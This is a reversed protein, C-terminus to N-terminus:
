GRHGHNPRHALRWPALSPSRYHVQGQLRGSAAQVGSNGRWRKAYGDLQPSTWRNRPHEMYPETCIADGTTKCLVYNGNFEAAVAAQRLNDLHRASSFFLHHAMFDTIAAAFGPYITGAIMGKRMTIHPTLFEMVICYPKTAYSFVRPM